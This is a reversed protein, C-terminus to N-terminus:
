EFNSVGDGLVVGMAALEHRAAAEDRGCFAILHNAYQVVIRQLDPHPHGSERTNAVLIEVTKRMLPEMEDMRGQAFLNMVLSDLIPALQSHLPGVSRSASEVAKHFQDEAETLRGTNTLVIGLNNRASAVQAHDEGFHKLSLDLVRRLLPEARVYDRLYLLSAAANNIALATRSDDPGTSAEFLKAAREALSYAAGYEKRAIHLTALNNLGTAVMLADPSADTDEAIELHRRLYQEALETRGTQLYYSGLNAAAAGVAPHTSGFEREERSLVDLLRDELGAIRGSDLLTLLLESHSATVKRHDPGLREVLIPLAAEMLRIADDYDGLWRLAKQANCAILAGHQRIDSANAWETEALSKRVISEAAQPDIMWSRAAAEAALIEWRWDIGAWEDALVRSRALAHNETQLLWFLLQYHNEIWRVLAAQVMKHVRGLREDVHLRLLRLSVMSDVLERWDDNNALEPFDEEAVARLWPLAIQDSPLFAAVTLLKLQADDLSEFTLALTRGLIEEKHRVAVIPNEAALESSEFPERRLQDIYADFAGPSIHRGIYIAATEVALTFGGLLAVLERAAREEDTSAFSRQPQHARFLALADDAPLEDVAIFAHGHASGGIQAQGLRTTTLVHVHAPLRMLVAPQLLAADTVNDLLLLTQGRGRLEALVREAALRSTKQEEETFVVGMAVGVRRLVLDFDSVDECQTLWRGGPYEWAFAHAYALALETKGMGGLGHIGLMSVNGRDQLAKRTAKLESVRGVFQANHRYLNHPSQGARAARSLRDDMEHVLADISRLADADGDNWSRLDCFQRARLATLWADAHDLSTLDAIQIPAIGEGLCHRAAEYRVYEDCELRCYASAFYAPSLIALLLSSDRLGEAIRGHWDAMTSLSEEDFFVNLRRGCLREFRDRILDRLSSVRQYTNDSRAYSIFADYRV